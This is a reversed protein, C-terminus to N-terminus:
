LSFHNWLFVILISLFAVMLTLLGKNLFSSYSEHIRTSKLLSKYHGVVHRTSELLAFSSSAGGNSSMSTPTCPASTNTNINMDIKGKWAKRENKIDEAMGRKCEAILQKISLAMTAREAEASLNNDSRSGGEGIGNLNDKEHKSKLKDDGAQISCSPVDDTEGGVGGNNAKDPSLISLDGDGGVRGEFVKAEMECIELSATLDRQAEQYEGLRLLAKGGLFLAKMRTSRSVECGEGTIVATEDKKLLANTHVLVDRWMGMKLHARACNLRIPGITDIVQRRHSETFTFSMQADDFNAHYLAREYLLLAEPMLGKGFADNGAKRLVEAQKLRVEFIPSRPADLMQKMTLPKKPAKMKKKGGNLAKILANEAKIAEDQEKGDKEM